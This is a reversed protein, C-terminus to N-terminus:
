DTARSDAPQQRAAWRARIRDRLANVRAQYQPDSEIQQQIADAEAERQQLYAEVEATNQLYYFVAGYIDGLALSPFSDQIQEATAGLKFHHVISDLSVRSGTIRITGDETLTLPVAQTTELM